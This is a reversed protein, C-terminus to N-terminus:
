QRVPPPGQLVTNMQSPASPENLPDKTLIFGSPLISTSGLNFDFSNVGTQSTEPLSGVYIPTNGDQTRVWLNYVQGINAAPLNSVVLTGSDRAADYIPIASAPGRAHATEGLPGDTKAATIADGLMAIMSHEPDNEALVIEGNLLSDPPRMTMIVPVAVGPVAEFLVRDRQQFKKLNERLVEIEQVLRKTNTKVDANALEQAAAMAAATHTKEVSTEQAGGHPRVPKEGRHAGSSEGEPNGQLTTGETGAVSDSRNQFLPHNQSNSFGLLLALVAAAAWGSVGLWFYGQRAPRLGLRKRLLELQGARPEVPLVSVAGIAASLRSIEEHALRLAPDERMTEDFHAAEDADMM